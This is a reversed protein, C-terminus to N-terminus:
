SLIRSAHLCALSRARVCVCVHMIQNMMGVVPIYPEYDHIYALDRKCTLALFSNLLVKNVRQGGYTINGLTQFRLDTVSPPGQPEWSM